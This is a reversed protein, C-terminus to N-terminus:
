RGRRAARAKATKAGHHAGCLCQGNTVDYLPGGDRVEEKHDAFMRHRPEAKLCRVGNDVAECRRGARAIVAERWRKFEPSSYIPRATKPPVTVRRMDSAAIRLGM